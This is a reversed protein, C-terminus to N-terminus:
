LHEPLGKKLRAVLKEAAEEKQEDTEADYFNVIKLQMVDNRLYHNWDRSLFTDLAIPMLKSAQIVKEIQKDVEDNELAAQSALFVVWDERRIDRVIEAFAKGRDPHDIVYSWTRIGAAELRQTVWQAMAGDRRIFAVFATRTARPELEINALQEVIAPNTGTAEFLIRRIKENDVALINSLSIECPGEFVAKEFGQVRNLDCHAITTRFFTAGAVNAHDLNAGTLNALRVDAGRLDVRELHADRMDAESLDADRLDASKLIARHFDVVDRPRKKRYDALAQAGHQRVTQVLERNAM